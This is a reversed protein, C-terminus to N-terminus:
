YILFCATVFLDCFSCHRCVFFCDLHYQIGECIIFCACDSAQFFYISNSMTNYMTTLFKGFRYHDCIFYDCCYFFAIVKCWKMVRCVQDTDTYAGLKHRTYRLYCYEICSEMLCHRCFCIEITKRDFIVLVVFYSSITEM